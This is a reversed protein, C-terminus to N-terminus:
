GAEPKEVVLRYTKRTPGRQGKRVQEVALLGEEALTEIVEDFQKKLMGSRQLLASHPITGQERILRLVKQRAQQGKTLALEGRVVFEASAHVYRCLALARRMDEAQIMPAARMAAYLCAFKLAYTESRATFADLVEGRGEPNDRVFTRFLLRAPGDLRMPTDTGETRLAALSAGLKEWAADNREPPDCRKARRRALVPVVCWRPLFGGETDSESLSDRFWRPTTAGLITLAPRDIVVEDAIKGDAEAGDKKAAKKRTRRHRWDPPSDFLQTLTQKYGAMYAQSAQGLWASLEYAVQLGSGGVEELWEFLGEPSGQAPAIWEGKAADTAERAYDIGTSKRTISSPGYLMIWLHPYVRRRGWNVYFQKGIAGAAAALGCAVLIEDSADTEGRTIELWEPLFGSSPLIASLDMRPASEPNAVVPESTEQPITDALLITAFESLDARMNQRTAVSFQEFLARLPAYLRANYTQTEVLQITTEPDSVDARTIETVCKFLLDYEAPKKLRSRVFEMFSEPSPVEGTKDFRERLIEAVDRLPRTYFEPEPRGAAGNLTPHRALILALYKTAFEPRITATAPDLGLIM